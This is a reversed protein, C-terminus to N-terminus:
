LIRWPFYIGNSNSGFNYVTFGAGSCPLNSMSLALKDEKWEQALLSFRDRYMTSNVWFLVCATEKIGPLQVIRRIKETQTFSRIQILKLKRRFYSQYGASVGDVNDFISRSFSCKFSNVQQCVNDKWRSIRKANFRHRTLKNLHCKKTIKTISRSTLMMQQNINVTAMQQFVLSVEFRRRELKDLRLRKANELPMNQQNSALITDASYRLCNMQQDCVMQQDREFVGVASNGRSSLYINELQNLAEIEAKLENTEDKLMENEDQLKSLETKLIDIDEFEDSNSEISSSKLSM